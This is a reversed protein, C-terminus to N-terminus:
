RSSRPTAGSSRRRPSTPPTPSAPRGDQVDDPGGAAEPTPADVVDDAAPFPVVTTDRAARPRPGGCRRARRRKWPTRRSEARGADVVDVPSSRRRRYGLVGRRRRLSIVVDPGTPRSTPTSRPRASRRSRPSSTSRWWRAREFAELLRDRGHVLQEIQQRALRLPAGAREARARPVGAGGRGDGPGAAQGDGARGRRRRRRRQAPPRRSIPRRASVSPRRPPRALLGAASDEARSKIQNGSERATQLIRTAEEGLLRTVTDEDLEVPLCRVQLRAGTSPGSGSRSGALEDAARRLFEHVQQPDFGKRATSFTANAVAEPSSPDPRPPASAM